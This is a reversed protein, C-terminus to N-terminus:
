ERQVVFRKWELRAGQFNILYGDPIKSLQLYNIIQAEMNNDLAKVSKIELIVKGDVVLDAFYSSIYDGNYRLPYVKQREFPINAHRLEWCMAEEYASELLGPGLTYHVTFALGIIRDSM